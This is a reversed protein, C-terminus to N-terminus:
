NLHLKQRIRRITLQTQYYIKKCYDRKLILLTEPSGRGDGVGGGGGIDVEKDLIHSRKVAM